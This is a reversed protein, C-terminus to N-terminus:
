SLGARAIAWVDVKKAGANLLTNALANASAGTTVVDDVIVIQCGKVEPSCRFTDRVNRLRQERSMGVQPQTNHSRQCLDTRLQLGNWRRLEDAVLAAQNYGRQHFRNRHMPMPVLLANSEIAKRIAPMQCHSFLYALAWSLERKNAFKLGTILLDVPAEYHFGAFISSYAPPQKLCNGCVANVPYALPEACVLCFNKLYPLEKLCYQCIPHNGNASPLNCLVCRNPTYSRFTRNLRHRWAHWRKHFQPKM